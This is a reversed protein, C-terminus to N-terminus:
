KVDDQGQESLSQSLQKYMADAIGTTGADAASKCIEGDMMEQFIDGQLGSDLLESKTVTKRMSKLLYGLFVSEFDKCAKKLRAAEGSPPFLTPRDASVNDVQM